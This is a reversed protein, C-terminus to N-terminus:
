VVTSQLVVFTILMLFFERRCWPRVVWPRRTAHPGCGCILYFSVCYNLRCPIQSTIKIRAARSGSGFLPEPGKGIFASRVQDVYTLKSL